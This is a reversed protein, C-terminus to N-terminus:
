NPWEESFDVERNRAGFSMDVHESIELRGECM